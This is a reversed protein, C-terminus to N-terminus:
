KFFVCMYIDKYIRFIKYIKDRKMGEEVINLIYFM